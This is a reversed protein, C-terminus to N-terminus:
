NNQKSIKKVRVATNFYAGNYERYEYKNAIQTQNDSMNIITGNADMRTVIDYTVDFGLIAYKDPSECYKKKFLQLTKQTNNDSLEVKSVYTYTIGTKYFVSNYEDFRKFYNLSFPSIYQAELESLKQSFAEFLTQNKSIFVPIINQYKETVLNQPVTLEDVSNIIQITEVNYENTLINKLKEANADNNDAIIYVLEKAYNEKIEKALQKLVLNDDIEAIILNNYKLLQDDYKVPSVIKLNPYKSALIELNKQKFPGIVADTSSFNITDILANFNEENGSDFVRVKIKRSQKYLSDLAIMSGALFNTAAKREGLKTNDKMSFPLFYTLEITTSDSIKQKKPITNQQLYPNQTDPKSDNVNKKIPIKLTFGKKLQVNQLFPNEQIIQSKNVNYVQSLNELTENSGTEIYVFDNTTKIIKTQQIEASGEVVKDIAKDNVDQMQTQAPIRLEDNAKLGREQLFSNYKKVIEETTNYKKILHYLTEKQGVLVYIFNDDQKIIQSPKYNEDFYSDTNQSSQVSSAKESIVLVDGIKLNREKLFPNLKQLKEVAVNYKKSIGYVTEQASVTHKLQASGWFFLIFFLLLYKSKM